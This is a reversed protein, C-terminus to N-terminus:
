KTENLANIKEEIERYERKYLEPHKNYSALLYDYVQYKIEDEIPMDTGDNSEDTSPYKSDFFFVCMNLIPIMMNAEIEINVKSM